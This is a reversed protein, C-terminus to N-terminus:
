KFISVGGPGVPCGIVILVIGAIVSGRFLAIIGVIVIVAAFIWLPDGCREDYRDLEVDPGGEPRQKTDRGRLSTRCRADM